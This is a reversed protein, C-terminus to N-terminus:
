LIRKKKFWALTPYIPNDNNKLTFINTHTGFFYSTAIMLMYLLIFQHAKFFHVSHEISM